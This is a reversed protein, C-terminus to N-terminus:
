DIATKDIAFLGFVFVCCIPHARSRWSSVAIVTQYQTIATTHGVFSAMYPKAFFSVIMRGSLKIYEFVSFRVFLLYTVSIKNDFLIITICPIELILWLKTNTNLLM